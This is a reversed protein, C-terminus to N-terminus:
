VTLYSDGLHTTVTPDRIHRTHTTLGGLASCSNLATVQVYARCALTPTM